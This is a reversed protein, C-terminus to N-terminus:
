LVPIISGSKHMAESRAVQRRCGITTQLACFGQIVGLGTVCVGAWVAEDIAGLIVLKIDDIIFLTLVPLSNILKLDDSNIM